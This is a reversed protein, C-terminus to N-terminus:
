WGAPRFWASRRGGQRVHMYPERNSVVFIRSSGLQERVHVALREATWLNEGAERLRAEAAAAARAELLSEAINEM